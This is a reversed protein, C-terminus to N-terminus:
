EREGQENWGIIDATSYQRTADKDKTEAETDRQRTDKKTSMDTEFSTEAPLMFM